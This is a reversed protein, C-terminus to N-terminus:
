FSGTWVAPVRCSPLGGPDGGISMVKAQIWDHVTELRDIYALAMNGFV